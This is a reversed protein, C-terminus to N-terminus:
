SRCSPSGPLDTRELLLDGNNGTEFYDFTTGNEDFARVALRDASAEVLFASSQPCGGPVKRHPGSVAAVTYNSGNCKGSANAHDGFSRLTDTGPISRTYIHTHGCVWLALPAVPTFRGFLDDVLPKFCNTQFGFDDALSYYAYHCLVIRREAELFEPSAAATKLWRCEEDVFTQDDNGTCYPHREPHYMAPKDEWSDLVLFATNGYRFLFYPVGSPHAFYNAWACRDNGRLEHNGRVFVIPKEGRTLRCLTSLYDRAVDNEFDSIGDTMDGLTVIFDCTDGNGHRYYSEILREREPRSFQLDGFALFRYEKKRGDVASFTYFNGDDPYFTEHLTVPDRLVIRYDYRAGEELGTLDIRRHDGSTQTHGYVSHWKRIWVSEGHKRWDIGGPMFGHTIFCVSMKGIDPNMLWPGAILTPEPKRLKRLLQMPSVIGTPTKGAADACTFRWGGTGSKVYVFFLNRGQQVPIDFVHNHPGIDETGNGIGMRDFATRGNISGCFWWDGGFGLRLVGSKEAEFELYAAACELSTAKPLGSEKLFDLTNNRMTIRRPLVAAGDRGPLEGPVASCIADPDIGDAIKLFVTWANEKQFDAFESM